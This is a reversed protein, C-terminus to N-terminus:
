KPVSQIVGAGIDYAVEYVEIRSQTESVPEGSGPTLSDGNAQWPIKRAADLIAQDLAVDGSAARRYALTELHKLDELAGDASASAADRIERPLPWIRQRYEQGTEDTLILWAFRRYPHPETYMGFGGGKWRTQPGFVSQSFQVVAVIDAVLVIARVFFTM